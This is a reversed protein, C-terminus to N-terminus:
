GSTRAHATSHLRSDKYEAGNVHTREKAVMRDLRGRDVPGPAACAMVQRGGREGERAGADAPQVLVGKNGLGTDVRM